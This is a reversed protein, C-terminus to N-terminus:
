EEVRKQHYERRRKKAGFMGKLYADREKEDFVIATHKQRGKHNHHKKNKNQSYNNKQPKGM